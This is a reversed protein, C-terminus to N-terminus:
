VGTQSVSSIQRYIWHLRGSSNMKNTVASEDSRTTEMVVIQKKKITELKRALRPTLSSIQVKSALNIVCSTLSLTSSSSVFFLFDNSGFTLMM